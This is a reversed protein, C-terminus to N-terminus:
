AAVGLQNVGQAAADDEGALKFHILTMETKGLRAHGSQTIIHHHEPAFFRSGAGGQRHAQTHCQIQVIFETKAAFPQIHQQAAAQHGGACGSLLQLQHPRHINDFALVFGIPLIQYDLM